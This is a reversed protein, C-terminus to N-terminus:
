ESGTCLQTCEGSQWSEDTCTYRGYIDANELYCLGNSQCEWQYPCCNSNSGSSCPADGATALDGNPYYCNQALALNAYIILFLTTSFNFFLSMAYPNKSSAM